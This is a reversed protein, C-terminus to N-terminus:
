AFARRTPFRQRYQSVADVASARSAEISRLASAIRDAAGIDAGRADINYTNGGGGVSALGANSIVNSGTNPVVIEPGREGVLYPAGASMNGGGARGFLGSFLGGAAGVGPFLADMLPKLLMAQVAMKAFGIMIENFMEKANFKGTRFLGDVASMVPGSIVSKMEEAMKKSEATNKEYIASIRTASAERILVRAENFEQESILEQDLMRKFRTEQATMDQELAYLSKGQAEAAQQRLAAMADAGAFNPKNKITLKGAETATTTWEGIAATAAKADTTSTTLWGDVAKIGTAAAKAGGNQIEKMRNDLQFIRFEYEAIQAQVKGGVLPEDKFEQRLRGYDESLQLIARDLGKMEADMSGVDNLDAKGFLVAGKGGAGGNALDLANKAMKNLSPAVDGIANQLRAGITEALQWLTTNLEKTNKIAQESIVSSYTEAQKAADKMGAAGKELLPILTLAEDGLMRKVFAAKEEATSLRRVVEAVVEFAEAQSRTNELMAKAEPLQDRLFIYQEGTRSRLEGMVSALKRSATDFTATDAGALKTAYRLKQFEDTSLGAARALNELAATEQMAASVAQAGFAAAFSAALPKLTSSVNAGFKQFRKENAALRQDAKLSFTDVGKEADKLASRMATTDAELRILLRELEGSM